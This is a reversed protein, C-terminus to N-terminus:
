AHSGGESSEQRMPWPAETLESALRRGAAALRTRITTASIGSERAIEDVPLDALYHLVIVQRQEAPM